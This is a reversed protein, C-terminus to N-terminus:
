IDITSLRMCKNLRGIPQEQNEIVVLLSSLDDIFLVDVKKMRNMKAKLLDFDDKLDNFGEVYPFYLVPVKQDNILHNSVATLLHTKGSGPQGFLAISNRREHRVHEFEQFYELACEYTDKIVLPKGKTAFNKFDLKKFEDTIESSKLMREIRKKEACICVRSYTSRWEWADEPKCVKGSLFDEESVMEKPVLTKYDDDEVWEVDKHVRFFLFGKDKCKLCEYKKEVSDGSKDVQSPTM